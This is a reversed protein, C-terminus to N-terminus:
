VYLEDYKEVLTKWSFSQEIMEIAGNQYEKLKGAAFIQYFKEFARQLEEASDNAIAIGAKHKEIYEALNTAESVVCPVGIAAAELIGSPLGENRSPHAFVHMRALLADKEDALKKGWLTVKRLGNESIYNEMFTKEPGDGVIWLEVKEKAASFSAYAELLLDLGKTHVDLRGMFGIVFKENDPPLFSKEHVNFGYPIVVSKAQPVLSELGEVESKGLLHVRYANEILVNEQLRFFLKKKFQSKRMAIDNYAGHPTLVYRIKNKKFFKALSGFVPVWGGHLHYVAQPKALIANRLTSDIWFPNASAVFLETKFSRSPYNHEVDKTIGWVQVNKGAAHQESALNYVVKNVGNLRNPNAKGLIIHIIEL